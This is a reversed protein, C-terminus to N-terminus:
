PTAARSVKARLSAMLFKVQVLSQTLVMSRGGGIFFVLRVDDGDRHVTIL